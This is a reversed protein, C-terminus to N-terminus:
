ANQSGLWEAFKVLSSKQSDQSYYELIEKENCDAFTKGLGEEFFVYWFDSWAIASEKKSREHTILGQGGARHFQKANGNEDIFTTCSIFNAKRNTKDKMLALLGDIGITTLMYKTYVGPFGNLAEVAFGGDEVLVPQNLIEYAKKAKILSVEAVTEAQPEMINLDTAIVEANIGNALLSDSVTKVKGKNSTIFNIKQM